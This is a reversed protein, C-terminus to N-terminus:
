QKILGVVLTNADRRAPCLAWVGRMGHVPRGSAKNKRLRRSLSVGLLGIIALSTPEPILAGFSSAPLAAGFNAALSNFDVTDVAGDYNFDGELWKQSSAGFNAALFNFDVSDVSGNLDADGMLTYRVLVATSDVTGFVPPVAGGLDSAEVFGLATQTGDATSSTLGAANWSGTGRGTVLLSRVAAAVSAGTYDVVLANSALDVTAVGAINLSTVANRTAGGSDLLKVNGASVNLGGAIDIQNAELIGAGAKTLSAPGSVSALTLVSSAPTITVTTDRALQV